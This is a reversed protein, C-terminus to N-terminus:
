LGMTERRWRAFRVVDEIPPVADEDGYATYMRWRLYTGDPVPLWPSRRWWERRRFAWATRLLDLALRPNVAARAALRGALSGWSREM